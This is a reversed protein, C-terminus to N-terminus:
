LKERVGFILETVTNLMSVTKDNLKTDVVKITELYLSIATIGRERISISFKSNISDPDILMLKNFLGTWSAFNGMEDHIKEFYENETRFHLSKDLAVIHCIGHFLGRTGIEIMSYNSTLLGNLIKHIEEIYGQFWDNVYRQKMQNMREEVDQKVTEKSKQFLNNRDFLILADQIAFYASNVSNAYHKIKMWDEFNKQSISVLIGNHYSLMYEDRETTDSYLITLDLDSLPTFDGRAYSGTIIISETTDVFYQPIIVDLIKIINSPLEEPIHYSM